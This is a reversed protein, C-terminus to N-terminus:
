EIKNKTPLQVKVVQVQNGTMEIKEKLKGRFQELLANWASTNARKITDLALAAAMRQIVTAKDDKSMAILEEASCRLTLGVVENLEQITLRRLEKVAPPLAPKGKPNGSVGKPFPRGKGPM